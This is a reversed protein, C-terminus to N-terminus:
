LLLKAVLAEKCGLDVLQLARQATGEGEADFDQILHDALFNYALLSSFPANSDGFGFNVFRDAFFNCALLTRNGGGLGRCRRFCEHLGGGGSFTPCRRRRRRHIGAARDGGGCRGNRCREGWGGRRNEGVLLECCPQLLQLLVQVVDGIHRQCLIALNDLRAQEVFLKGFGNAGLLHCRGFLLNVSAM